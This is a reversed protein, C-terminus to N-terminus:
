ALPSAALIEGALLPVSLPACGEALNNITVLSPTGRQHARAIMRALLRRTAPDEEALDHFPQFREGAEAYRYGPRVLWRVVFLPSLGVVRFQETLSPMGPYVNGCHCAGAERLAAAYAETLLRPTRLEVAYRPGEEGLRPLASLFTHLAAAFAQPDTLPTGSAFRPSLQFLIAGAKRDLGEVVPAVVADATYHPDLFHPSAQGQREGYRPHEPFRPLTIAEHAKILFRFHEPVQEAYRAFDAAPLPQYHTRDIGVARFLPNQSYAALGERALLSQSYKRDYVRGTWGPFSWTSGGLRIGAPLKTALEHIEERVPISGVAGSKKAPPDTAGGFLSLQDSM